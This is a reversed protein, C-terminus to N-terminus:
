AERTPQTVRCTPVPLAATQGTGENQGEYTNVGGQTVNGGCGALAVALLGTVVAASLRHPRTTRV